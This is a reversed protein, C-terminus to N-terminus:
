LDLRLSNFTFVRVVFVGLVNILPKRKANTWGVMLYLPYARNTGLMQSNGWLMKFRPNKKTLDWPELKTM